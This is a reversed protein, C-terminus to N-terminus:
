PPPDFSSLGTIRGDPAVGIAEAAPHRPLGPMTMIDGCIAVVFGAGASLRVERVPLVHGTPAGCCSPDASFSYQTKAICVPLHGFGQAELRRAPRRGGRRSAVEGAGTSRAPSRRSRTSCRCPRRSLAAHLRRESRDIAAVVAQPWSRPARRRGRGLSPLRGGQRRLGRCAEVVAPSSPMPIPPSTTSRWSPRCASSASTRSSAAAPQGAGREVAPSMRARRARRAAVGGHFKLARVTAVVVAATPTSAPRAASSTSSNRPAWTPASAPRPSSM